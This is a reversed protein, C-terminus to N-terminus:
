ITGVVRHVRFDRVSSAVYRAERSLGHWYVELCSTWCPFLLSPGERPHSPHIVLRGFSSAADNREKRRATKLEKASASMGNSRCKAGRQLSEQSCRLGSRWDSVPCPSISEPTCKANRMECNLADTRHERECCRSHARRCREGGRTGGERASRPSSAARRKRRAVNRSRGRANGAGRQVCVRRLFFTLRLPWFSLAVTM